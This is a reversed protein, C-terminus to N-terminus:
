RVATHAIIPQGRASWRTQKGAVHTRKICAICIIGLYVVYVCERQSIILVHTAECPQSEPM